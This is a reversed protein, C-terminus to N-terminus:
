RRWDIVSFPSSYDDTWTIANAAPHLPQWRPDAALVGLDRETRAVVAYITASVGRRQDAPSVAYDNRILCVLKADEALKAVVSPLNFFRSSLHFAIVGQPALHALYLRLAERTILHTPIADSTYADLIILDYRSSDDAAM